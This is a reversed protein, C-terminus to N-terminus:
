GRSRSTFEASLKVWRERQGNRFATREEDIMESIQKLERNSIRPVIRELVASELIVRVEFM